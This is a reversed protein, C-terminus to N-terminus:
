QKTKKHLVLYECAAFRRRLLSDLYLCSDNAVETYKGRIDYSKELDSRPDVIHLYASDRACLMHDTSYVVTSHRMFLNKGFGFEDHEIGMLSLLTSPIDAQCGLTKVEKKGLRPSHIILPVHNFSEAIECEPRGIVKGHDAVFVFITNDYLGNKKMGNFLQKLCYDAYKVIAFETDLGDTDFWEPIVYPPHNSITLLVSFFPQPMTKFEELAYNVLFGDSVGFSNVVSDAPYDEQSRIRKVGNTRLFANMNDYQSEHSMYFATHYGNDAFVNPLGYYSPIETGKMANRSLVTPFGYLSSYIGQNTHNGVSYFHEFSVSENWLSDLFPTLNNTEGFRSMLRASMSEMLIMVVNPKEDVAFAASSNRLCRRQLSLSDGVFTATSDTQMLRRYERLATEGDMLDLARNERRNSDIYTNLFNFAANVGLCNLFFDDCYYAASVKIPNYGMRGRIGFACLGIVVVSVLLIKLRGSPSLAMKDSLVESLTKESRKWVFAIFFGMLTLGFVILLWYSPEGLIMVVTTGAEEKWELISANIVNSFYKFYQINAAQLAIEFSLVAVTLAMVIRWIIKNVFPIICSIFLLLSYPLIMVYCVAVNDFWLGRIFAPWVPNAVSEDVFDNLCIYEVLRVVSLVALAVVHTSLLFRFTKFFSNM